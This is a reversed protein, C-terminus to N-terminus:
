NVSNETHLRNHIRADIGFCEKVLSIIDNQYEVENKHLSFLITSSSGISGEALFYGLLKALSPTVNVELNLKSYWGRKMMYESCYQRLDILETHWISHDIPEVLLDNERLNEARKWEYKRTDVHNGPGYGTDQNEYVRRRAFRKNPSKILLPHQDTVVITENSYVRKITFLKGSYQRNMVETVTRALGRHTIVTDGPQIDEIQILEDHSMMSQGDYHAMRILTGAPHCSEVFEAVEKDAGEKGGPEVRWTAQKLSNEIAFFIAAIVPDNIRMERLLLRGERGQLERIKETHLVDGWRTTGTTGFERYALQPDISQTISIPSDENILMADLMERTYRRQGGPTLHPKIKGAQEYRLLSSRSVGYERTVDSPKLLDPM